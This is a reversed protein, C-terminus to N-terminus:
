NNGNALKMGSFDGTLQRTGFNAQLNLNGNVTTTSGGSYVAGSVKGNYTASGAVPMNGGATMQGILFSSGRVTETLIKGYEQEKWAGWTMYQYQTIEEDPSSIAYSNKNSGDNHDIIVGFNNKDEYYSDRIVGNLGFTSSVVSTINNTLPNSTGELNGLSVTGDQEMISVGGYWTFSQTTSGRYGYGSIPRDTISSDIKKAMIYSQVYWSGLSIDYNNLNDHAIYYGPKNHNHYSMYYQRDFTVGSSTIRAATFSGNNTLIYNYTTPSPTGIYGLGTKLLDFDTNYSLKIDNWDAVNYNDGFTAKVIDKINRFMESHYMMPTVRFSGAILSPPSARNQIPNNINGVLTNKRISDNQKIPLNTNEVRNVLTYVPKPNYIDTTTFNKLNNYTFKAEEVKKKAEKTEAIIKQEERRLKKEISKISTYKKEAKKLEKKSESFARDNESIIAIYENYDRQAEALNRQRFSSNPYKKAMKEAEVLIDIKKYFIKYLKDSEKLLATKQKKWYNVAKRAGKKTDSNKSLELKVKERQAQKISVLKNAKEVGEQAIKDYKKKAQEKQQKEKALKNKEEIQIKRLIEEKKYWSTNKANKVFILKKNDDSFNSIKGEIEDAIMLEVVKEPNNKLMENIQYASYGLTALSDIATVSLDMASSAGGFFAFAYNKSASALNKGYNYFFGKNPNNSNIIKSIKISSRVLKQQDILLNSYNKIDEISIVTKNRMQASITKDMASALQLKEMAFKNLNVATNAIYTETLASIAVQGTNIAGSAALAGASMGGTAALSGVTGASKTLTDVGANVLVINKIGESGKEIEKIYNKYGDYKKLEQITQVSSYIDNLTKDSLKVSKGFKNKIGVKNLEVINDPVKYVENGQKLFIYEANASVIFVIVFFWARFFGM